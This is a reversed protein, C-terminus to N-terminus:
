TARRGFIDPYEDIITNWDAAHHFRIVLYGASTLRDTIERDEVQQEPRDHVPGDIYVVTNDDNYFFDPRTQCAAILHQAHTPLRLNADYLGQLWRRELESDCARILEDFHDARARPGASSLTRSGMLERLVEV